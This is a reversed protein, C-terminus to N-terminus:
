ISNTVSLSDLCFLAMRYVKVLIMQMRRKIRIAYLRMPTPLSNRKDPSTVEVM